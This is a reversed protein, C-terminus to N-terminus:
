CLISSPDCSISTPRLHPEIQISHFFFVGSFQCVHPMSWEPYPFEAPSVRHLQFNRAGQISQEWQYMYRLKLSYFFEPDASFGNSHRPPPDGRNQRLWAALLYSPVCMLYLHIQLRSSLPHIIRYSSGNQFFGVGTNPATSPIQHDSM